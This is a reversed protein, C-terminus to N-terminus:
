VRDFCGVDSHEQYWTVSSILLPIISVGVELVGLMLYVSDCCSDVRKILVFEIRISDLFFSSLCLIHPESSWEKKYGPCLVAAKPFLIRSLPLVSLLAQLSLRKPRYCASPRHWGPRAWQKDQLWFAHSCNTWWSCGQPDAHVHESVPRELLKWLSCDGFGWGVM